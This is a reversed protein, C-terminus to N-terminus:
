STSAPLVDLDDVHLSLLARVEEGEVAVLELAPDLAPEVRGGGPRQHGGGVRRGPQVSLAVVDVHVRQDLQNLVRDTAVVAEREGARRLVVLVEPIRAVDVAGLVEVPLHRGVAHRRALAPLCEIEEVVGREVGVVLEDGVLGPRARAVVHEQPGGVVQEARGRRAGVVDVRGVAPLDGVDVDADVSGLISERHRDGVADGRLGVGDHGLLGGEM